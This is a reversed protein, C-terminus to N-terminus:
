RDGDHITPDATPIDFQNAQRIFGVLEGVRERLDLVDWLDEIEEVALEAIKVKDPNAVTSFVDRYRGSDVTYEGAKEPHVARVSSILHELPVYNEIERGETIWAVGHNREFEGVIRLKTANINASGSGKDSDIVIAMNRNIRLLSIFENARSDLTAMEEGTLHSLLRGGYFMVSYHIGEVLSDDVAQIWRRLYVRDSPGEVWVIANSQVLDSARYGLHSALEARQDPTLSPTVTTGNESDYSTRFVTVNPDDLLHASHTTILYQNTTESRLFRILRRILTPHLNLEPEEMCILHDDYTTAITALLVVQSIGTGLNQLPLVRAGLSVHITQSDFPVLIKADPRDLVQGVFRNIREYRLTDARYTTARPSQLRQLLQPLGQGTFEDIVSSESATGANNIARIAPILIVPPVSIKSTTAQLMRTLDDRDNSQVSSQTALLPRLVGASESLLADIQSQAVAINRDDYTLLLWLSEDGYEEANPRAFSPSGALRALGLHQNTDHQIQGPAPLIARLSEVRGRPHSIAIGGLLDPPPDIDIPTDLDGFPSQSGMDRFSTLIRQAALLVNSKGDNNHGALVTIRGLPGVYQPDGHFSRFGGIAFGALAVDDDVHPLIGIAALIRAQIPVVPATTRRGTRKARSAM